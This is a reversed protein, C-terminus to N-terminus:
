PRGATVADVALTLRVSDTIAQVSLSAGAVNPIDRRLRLNENLAKGRFLDMWSKRPLYDEPEYFALVETYAVVGDPQIKTMLTAPFTRILRTDFYARGEASESRRAEYYTIVRTNLKVRARKEIDAAQSDTLFVTRREVTDTGPFALALAQDQTLFVKAHATAPVALTLLGAASAAARRSFTDWHM